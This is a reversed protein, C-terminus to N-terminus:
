VVVKFIGLSVMTVVVGILMGIIYTKFTRKSLETEYIKSIQELNYTYTESLGNCQNMIFKKHKDYVFGAKLKVNEMNRANGNLIKVVFTQYTEKTENDKPNRIWIPEKM